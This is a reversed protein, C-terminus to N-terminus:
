FNKLEDVSYPVIFIKAGRTDISFKYIYIKNHEKGM